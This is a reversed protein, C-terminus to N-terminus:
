PSPTPSVEPTPTPMIGVQKKLPNGPYVDPGPVRYIEEVVEGNVYHDIYVDVTIKNRAPALIKEEGIFLKNSETIEDPGPPEESVVVVRTKYEHGEPLAQGYIVVTLDRKRSKSMKNESSYAYIYLDHDTINIFQFDIHNTDVTADLGKEVYTSPFSHFERQVIEIYPYVQLLANYLTTSVQCVGGGYQPTTRDGGFIGQALAWGNDETRDGVVKNFSWTEGPKIVNANIISAAKEVNFARNPIYLTRQEETDEATGKFDYTTTFKALLAFSAQIDAVTRSPAINTLAPTLTAQYEGAAIAQKIMETTSAVDLGYGPTGEIYQPTPKGSSSFEMNVSADVPPKSSTQNIADIRTALAAENISVTTSYSQNAGGALAQEIIEDLNTTASMEPGTITASLETSTLTIAIRELFTSENAELQPRVESATKGSVDMGNISVGSRFAATAPDVVIPESCSKVLVLVAVVVIVLFAVGMGGLILKRKRAKARRANARKASTQEVSRNPAQYYEMQGNSSRVPRRESRDGNQSASKTTDPLGSYKEYMTM